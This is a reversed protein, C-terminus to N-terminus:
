IAAGMKGKNGAILLAHGFNGKHSFPTRPKYYSQIQEKSILENTTDVRQLFDPHLGIDLIEVTGFFEANEPVLFCVKLSQFSLTHTARIVANGRSNKDIFMGSPVDIALIRAGLQNIHL